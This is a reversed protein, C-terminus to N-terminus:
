SKKSNEQSARMFPSASSHGSRQKDIEEKSLVRKATEITIRFDDIQYMHYLRSSLTNKFLELIQCEGYNLLAAVQKVRSIYSDITATNEDYQFSRWVHFYQERTSGFKSYQQRFHDQLAQWDLHAPRLTEYWLIVECTLTSCIRRVKTDDHFDHTEMWDNTRLLHVETDEEPKGLFEPKFYSWNLQSPQVMPTPPNEPIVLPLNPQDPQNLQNPPPNPQDPEETPLDLPQNPPNLQPDLIQNTPPNSNNPDQDVEMPPLDPLQDAPLPFEQDEPDILIINPELPHTTTKVSRKSPNEKVKPQYVPKSKSKDTKPVPPVHSSQHVSRTRPSGKRSAPAPPKDAM